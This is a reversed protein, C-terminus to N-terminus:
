PAAAQCARRELSAWQKYNKCLNCNFWETVMLYFNDRDVVKRVTHYLGQETLFKNECTEEGKPMRLSAALILTNADM